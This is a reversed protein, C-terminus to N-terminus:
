LMGTDHMLDLSFFLYYTFVGFAVIKVAINRGIFDGQKYSNTKTNKALAQKGVIKRTDRVIDNVEKSIRHFQPETMFTHNEESKISRLELQDEDEDDSLM